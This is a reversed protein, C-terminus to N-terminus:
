SEANSDHYGGWAGGGAGYLTIEDGKLFPSEGQGTDFFTEPEDGPKKISIKGAGGAKGGEFGLHSQFSRGFNWILIGDREATLQLIRGHGGRARGKGGSGAHLGALKFHVPCEREIKEISSHIPSHAEHIMSSSWTAFADLGEEGKRAASGPSLRGRYASDAFRLEFFADVGAESPKKMAPNLRIFATQVLEAVTAAGTTVGNFLGALGRTSVMTRAPASVRFHEFTGSNMPVSQGILRVTAAICAGFTELETLALNESSETGAFDFNLSKESVDLQLKMVEGTPLSATVLSHGLPLRTMLSEFAQSSDELYRRFHMRKFESGPDRALQLVDFATQQMEAWATQIAQALNKPAFPHASVANLLDLNLIGRAALPTPPVRVGQDDLKDHASLRQPFSIRRALLLDTGLNETDLGMVLTFDSLTTGSSLPDNLIAGDGNKLHLYQSCLAAAHPLTALDAPTAARVHLTQGGNMVLASCGLPALLDDLIRHLTESRILDFNWSKRIMAQSSASAQPNSSHTM